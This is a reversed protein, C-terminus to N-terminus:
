GALPPLSSSSCRLPCGTLSGPMLRLQSEAPLHGDASKGCVVVAYIPLHDSGTDGLGTIVRSTLVELDRSAYIHDFGLPFYRYTRGSYDNLPLNRSAM